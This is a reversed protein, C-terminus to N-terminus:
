APIAFVDGVAVPQGARASEEMKLILRTVALGDLGDVDPKRDEIVCRAFHRISESAFGAPQGQITPLVFTDPYTTRDTQKETAGHHSGDIFFAGRSGVFQCKLDFISPGCEPLIWANEMVSVAGSRWELTTLYFDPTPVGREGALVRSRTLCTLREIADDGQRANLLWLLTDLCHSSLFWAVSSQGAWRLMKTPVFITDNLRYTVLQPTGLEGADLSQKLSQFLPSWRNHFDVFLTVRATRAERMITVADDETTALPKELLIHKGARAAAVAADRHLFDPLVISVAQVNPDAVIERYDTYAAVGGLSDSVERARDANTDCVAALRAGPTSAYV